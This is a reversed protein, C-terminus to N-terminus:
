LKKLEKRIEKGTAKVKKGVSKVVPKLEKGMNKFESKLARVWEEFKLDSKVQRIGQEGQKYIAKVGKKIKSNAYETKLEVLGSKVDVEIEDSRAKVNFETGLVTIDGQDTSVLFETEATVVDFFAEGYLAVSRSEFEKDFRITTGHNLYVLSGDPLIMAEFNDGTRVELNPGCAIFLVILGVQSCKLLM